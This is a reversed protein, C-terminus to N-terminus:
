SAFSCFNSDASIALVCVQELSGRANDETLQATQGDIGYTLYHFYNNLKQLDENRRWEWGARNEFRIVLERLKQKRLAICSPIVAKGILKDIQGMKSTPFDRKEGDPGQIIFTVREFRRFDTKEIDPHDVRFKRAATSHTDGVSVLNDLDSHTRSMGEPPNMTFAISYNHNYLEEKAEENIMRSTLLFPFGMHPRHFIALSEIRELISPDHTPEPVWGVDHIAIPFGLTAYHWIRKRIEFTLIALTGLSAKENEKEFSPDSKTSAPGLSASEYDNSPNSEISAGHLREHLAAIITM